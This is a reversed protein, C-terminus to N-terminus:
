YVTLEVLSHSTNIKNEAVFRIGVVIDPVYYTNWFCAHILLHIIGGFTLGFM